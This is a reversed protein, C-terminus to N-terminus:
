SWTERIREFRSLIASLQNASDIRQKNIEELRLNGNNILQDYINKDEIKLICEILEDTSSPDFYLAADKAQNRLHSSYILPKKYYWADLPPINTPGFYTPMVVAKCNSYLAHLESFKVFGLVKIEKELGYEKIKKKIFKKNGKDSGCFVVSLKKGKEKLKKIALIIRIHNKHEWFQAPYFLFNDNIDFKKFNMELDNNKQNILYPSTTNPFVVIRDKSKNFQNSIKNKLDESEVIVFTAPGLCTNLLKERLAFINYESVESFEPFDRHCIDMITIAYNIKQLYFPKPSPTVFLVFDINDKVLKKEFLTKMKIKRQIYSGILSFNILAFTKDFISEKLFENEININKLTEKNEKCFNYIKFHYNQNKCVNKIQLLLDSSMSFGGGVNMENEIVAAIRM